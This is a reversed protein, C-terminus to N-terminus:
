SPTAVGKMRAIATELISLKESGLSCGLTAWMGRASPQRNVLVILESVSELLQSFSRIVSWMDEPSAYTVTLDEVAPDEREAIPSLLQLRSGASLDRLVRLIQERSIVPPQSSDAAQRQTHRKIRAPKGYSASSRTVVPPPSDDGIGPFLGTLEQRKTSLRETLERKHDEVYRQLRYRRETYLRKGDLILRYLSNKDTYGLLDRAEDTSLLGLVIAFAFQQIDEDLTNFSKVRYGVLTLFAELRILREGRARLNEAKMRGPRADRLGMFQALIQWSDGIPFRIQFDVLCELASRSKVANM